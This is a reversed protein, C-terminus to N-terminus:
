LEKKIHAYLVFIWGTIFLLGGIPTMPGLVARLSENSLTALLYLSGSFLIVGLVFCSLVLKANAKKDMSDALAILSVAHVFQYLVATKWTIIGSSGLTASLAHAGFAGLIVGLLAFFSGAIIYKNKM